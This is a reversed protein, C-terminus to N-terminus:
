DDETRTGVLQTIHIPLIIQFTTGSPSSRCDIAGNHERIIKDCLALGMGTGQSKTTFYPDFIRDQLDKPIGPGSDAVELKLTEEESQLDARMRIEGGRPMAEMANLVLNLLVQELRIPDVSIEPLDTGPAEVVIKVQQHRAQPRLFAAQRELLEVVDVKDFNLRGISAYDRFNELVGGVRLVETKIVGLMEQIDDSVNSQDLQEELLQVHLSLAALPNKIEHHLGAALNGLGMYREMRRLRDDIFVRETVDRLQLIHGIIRDDRNRLPQCFGRLTRLTGDLLVTFDRTEESHVREQMEKRYQDLPMHLCVESLLHGIGDDELQLFHRGRQNISTIEGRLDTTIVGEEMSSLIDSAQAKIDRLSEQSIHYARWLIVIALTTLVANLIVLITLRFQLRLEGILEEASDRVDHPLNAILEHVIRQERLFDVLMWVTVGMSCLSLILLAIIALFPTKSAPAHRTRFM